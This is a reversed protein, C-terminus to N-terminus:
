RMSSVGQAWTKKRGFCGGFWSMGYNKGVGVRVKGSMEM